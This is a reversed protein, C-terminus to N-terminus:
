GADTLWGLLGATSGPDAAIAELDTQQAALDAEPALVAPPPLTPPVAPAPGALVLVATPIRREQSDSFRNVVTGDLVMTTSGGGDLNIAAQAGLGVFLEAFERLTMGVSHDPQRGDVTVLLLRGDATAGVGTRPNRRHFPTTGDVNGSLVRGNRVLTPNGGSTDLIGPWTAVSWAVTVLDGVELANLDAAATGAPPTSLVVTGAPVPGGLQGVEEVTYATEAWGDARVTAPGAARLRASTADAPPRELTVGEPTFMAVEDGAPAGRNVQAVALVLGTRPVEAVVQVNPRGMFVTVERDDVAHNNGLLIATQLLRGDKAFTHIPRGAHDPDAYDGNIAVTAGRRRAMSSTTELGPLVDLALALDITSPSSLTVTVLHIAFPGAPDTIAQHVVGPALYGEPTTAPSGDLVVAQRDRSGDSRVGLALAEVQQGPRLAHPVSFGHAAAGEAELDPRPRDATVRTWFTGDVSLAVTIPGDYDDDVAWGVVDTATVAELRGRPPASAPVRRPSGQLLVPEQGPLVASVSVAQGDALHHAVAFRWPGGEPDVHAARAYGWPRGDVEIRLPVPGDVDEGTVRGWITADTVADLWGEVM